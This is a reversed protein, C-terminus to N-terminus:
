DHTCVLRFLPLKQAASELDDVLSVGIGGGLVRAARAHNVRYRQFVALAQTHDLRQAQAGTRTRGRTFWVEPDSTINRCWQSREGFGSAIVPGDDEGTELVELVTTRSLGSKRGTHELLLFRSGLLGGLGIRYLGIPSRMLLRQFRNVSEVQRDVPEARCLRLDWM